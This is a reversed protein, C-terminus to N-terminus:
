DNGGGGERKLFLLLFVGGGLLTTWVGVPIEMPYFLLRAVTDATVLLVGGALVALPLIQRLDATGLLTRIIHPAILAIYGIPGCQAVTIAVLGTCVGLVLVRVRLVKIGLGAAAEDGLQLLYLTRAFMFAVPLAILTWPLMSLVHDWSRNALSGLLYTYLLNVDNSTALAILVILLGNLIASVSMGILLMGAAGRSGRASLVVCLGGLLGGCLAIVPHMILAVPLHLVTVAAMALSAGSSVGLMEPGALKNNMAAQMLTGAAGLMMGVLLGLLVRPIRMEWVVTNQLDTGTRQFIISGLEQLPIEPSGSSINFIAVGALLSCLIVAPFLFSRRGMRSIQPEMRM